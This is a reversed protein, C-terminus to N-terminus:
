AKALVAPLETPLYECWHPHGFGNVKRDLLPEYNSFESIENMRAKISEFPIVYDVLPSKGTNDMLWYSQPGWWWFEKHFLAVNEEPTRKEAPGMAAVLSRAYEIMATPIHKTFNKSQGLKRSHFYMSVFRDLPHRAVAFTQVNGDNFHRSVIQQVTVHCAGSLENPERIAMGGTRTTHIHFLLPQDVPRTILKRQM